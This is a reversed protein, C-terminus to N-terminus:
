KSRRECLLLDTLKISRLCLFPPAEPEESNTKQTINPENEEYWDSLADELDIRLDFRESSRSKTHAGGKHLLPSRAVPNRARSNRSRPM